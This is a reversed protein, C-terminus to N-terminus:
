PRDALTEFSAGFTAKIAQAALTTEGFSLVADPAAVGEATIGTVTNSTTNDSIYEYNLTSSSITPLLDAIRPEHIREVLGPMLEAPLLSEVTNFGKTTVRDEDVLKVQFAHGTKLSKSMLDLTHEDIQFPNLDRGLTTIRRGHQDFHESVPTGSGATKYDGSGAFDGGSARLAGFKDADLQKRDSEWVSYADNFSKMEAPNGRAKELRRQLDAARTKIDRLRQEYSM